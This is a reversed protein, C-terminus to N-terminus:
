EGAEDGKQNIKKSNKKKDMESRIRRVSDARMGIMNGIEESTFNALSLLRIKTPNDLDKNASLSVANLTILADLKELMQKMLKSQDTEM